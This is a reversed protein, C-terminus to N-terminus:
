SSAKRRVAEIKRDRDSELARIKESLEERLREMKTWADEARTSALRRLESETMIKCEAVKAECESRIEKISARAQEDL